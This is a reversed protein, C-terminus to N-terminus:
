ARTFVDESADGPFGIPPAESKHVILVDCIETLGCAARWRNAAINRESGREEEAAHTEPRKAVVERCPVERPRMEESKRTVWCAADPRYVRVAVTRAPGAKLEFRIGAFMSIALRGTQDQPRNKQPRRDARAGDCVSEEARADRDHHSSIERSNRKARSAV